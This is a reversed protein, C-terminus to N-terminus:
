PRPQTCLGQETEVLIGRETLRTPNLRTNNIDSPAIEMGMAECVRRVWLPADAAALLATIQQYAPQAPLKPAPAPPQPDPLELLTSGTTPSCSTSTRTSAAPSLGSPSFARAPSNM